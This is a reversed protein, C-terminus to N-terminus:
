VRFRLGTELHLGWGVPLPFMALNGAFVIKITCSVALKESIM